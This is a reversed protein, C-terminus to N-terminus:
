PLDLVIVPITRSTKKEYDAFFTFDAKQQRWFEDREGDQAVRAIVAFADSGVKISVAPNAVLNHYWGTHKPAGGRSAFIAFSDGVAKYLLPQVSAKSSKAGTTNLILLPMGEFDGGVVGGNARFEKVVGANWDDNDVM